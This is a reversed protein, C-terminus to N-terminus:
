IIQNRKLFKWFQWWKRLRIRSLEANLRTIEDYYINCQEALDEFEIKSQRLERKTTKLLNQYQDTKSM